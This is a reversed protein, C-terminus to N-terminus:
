RDVSAPSSCSMSASVFAIMKTDDCITVGITSHAAAAAITSRKAICWCKRARNSVYNAFTMAERMGGPNAGLM